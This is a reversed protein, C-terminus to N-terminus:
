GLLAFNCVVRNVKGSDNNGNVNLHDFQKTYRLRSRFSLEMVSAPTMPNSLFLTVLNWEIGNALLTETRM